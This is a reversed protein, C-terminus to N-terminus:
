KVQRKSTLITSIKGYSSVTFNFYEPSSNNEVYCYGKHKGGDPMTLEFITYMEETLSSLLRDLYNCEENNIDRNGNFRISFSDFKQIRRLYGQLEMPYFEEFWDYQDIISCNLSTISTMEKQTSNTGKIGIKFLGNTM